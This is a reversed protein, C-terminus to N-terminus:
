KEMGIVRSVKIDGINVPVIKNIKSNYCNGVFANGYKPSTTSSIGLHLGDPLEKLAM